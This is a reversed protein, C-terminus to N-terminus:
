LVQFERFGYLYKWTPKTKLQCYRERTHFTPCKPAEYKDASVFSTLFGFSASVVTRGM